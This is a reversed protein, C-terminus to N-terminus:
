TSVQSDHEVMYLFVVDERKARIATHLPYETKAKFMQYALPAPMNAFDESTFDDQLFIAGSSFSVDLGQGQDVGCVSSLCFLLFCDCDCHVIQCTVIFLVLFM